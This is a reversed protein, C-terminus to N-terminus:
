ARHSTNHLPSHTAPAAKFLRPRSGRTRSLLRHAVCREVHTWYHEADLLRFLVFATQSGGTISPHYSGWSPTVSQFEVELVGGTHQVYALGTSLSGPLIRQGQRTGELHGSQRGLDPADVVQWGGLYRCCSASLCSKLAARARKCDDVTPFLCRRARCGM